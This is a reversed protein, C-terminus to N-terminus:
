FTYYEEYVQTFYGFHFGLSSKLCTSYIDFWLTFEAETKALNNSM